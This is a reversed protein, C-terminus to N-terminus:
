NDAYLSTVYQQNEFLLHPQLACMSGRRGCYSTAHGKPSRRAKEVHVQAVHIRSLRCKFRPLRAEMSNRIQELLHRM